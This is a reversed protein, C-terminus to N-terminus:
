AAAFSFFSDEKRGIDYLTEGKEYKQAIRNQLLIRCFRGRFIASLASSLVCEKDQQSHPAPQLVNANASM